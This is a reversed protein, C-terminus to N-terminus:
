YSEESLESTCDLYSEDKVFSAFVTKPAKKVKPKPAARTKKKVVFVEAEEEEDEDDVEEDEDDEDDNDDAEEIAEENDNDDVVFGDKAYGSKTRPLDADEDDDTDDDEDEDDDGIDEFGGMLRDYILDWEKESLNQSQDSSGLLVVNGFYLTNDVPPPFEYKNEQNARGATKGYISVSYNKSGIDDIQWTHQCVFGDATKFGAKKYLEAVDFTKVSTEKVTGNKEIILINTPAM